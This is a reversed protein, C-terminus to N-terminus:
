ERVMEQVKQVITVKCFGCIERKRTAPKGNKHVISLTYQMDQTIDLGCLDCIIRTM